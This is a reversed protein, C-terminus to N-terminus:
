VALGPKFGPRLRPRFPVFIVKDDEVGTVTQKEPPTREVVDIPCVVESVQTVPDPRTARALADGRGCRTKNRSKAETFQTERPDLDDCGNAVLRTLPNSLLSTSLSFSDFPVAVDNPVLCAIGDHKGQKRAVHYLLHGRARLWSHLRLYSGIGHGVIMFM